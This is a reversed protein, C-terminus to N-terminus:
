VTILKIQAIFTKITGDWIAVQAHRCQVHRLARLEYLQAAAVHSDSCQVHRRARLERMQEAVVRSQM